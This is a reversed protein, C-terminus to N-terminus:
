PKTDRRGRSCVRNSLDMGVNNDYNGRGVKFPRKKLIGDNLKYGIKYKENPHICKM